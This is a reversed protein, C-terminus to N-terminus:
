EESIINLDDKVRAVIAHEGPNYDKKGFLISIDQAELGRIKYSGSDNKGIVEGSLFEYDHNKIAKSTAFADYIAYFPFVICFLGLFSIAIIRLFYILLFLIAVVIASVIFSVPILKISSARAKKIFKQELEESVTVPTLLQNGVANQISFKVDAAM